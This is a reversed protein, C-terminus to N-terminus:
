FWSEAIIVIDGPMISLNASIDGQKVLDDLRLNYSVEKGDVLRILVSQNGAAYETLGGAAIMVDLLTMHKKYTIQQPDVAEGMVRVSQDPVGEFGTVTVSVVPQRVYESYAAEVDRALQTSTKGSAQLDEVLHTTLKGDPRVPSSSNLESNGWVFIAIEDGPGIIYDYDVEVNVQADPVPPLEGGVTCGVLLVALAVALGSKIKHLAPVGFFLKTNTTM